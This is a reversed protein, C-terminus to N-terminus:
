AGAITDYHGHILADFSGAQSKGAGSGKTQRPTPGTLAHPRVLRAGSLHSDARKLPLKRAELNKQEWVSDVGAWKCTVSATLGFGLFDLFYIVV